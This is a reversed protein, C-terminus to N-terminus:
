VGNVDAFGVYTSDSMWSPKIVGCGMNASCCYCCEDTEPYHLYRDGNKVYQNCAQDKWNHHTLGCYRDHVGNARDIRYLLDDPNSVDYYYTGTTTELKKLPYKVTETFTQQWVPQWVPPPPAIATAYAALAVSLLFRM